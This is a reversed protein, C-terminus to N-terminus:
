STDCQHKGASVFDLIRASTLVKYTEFPKKVGHSATRFTWSKATQDAPHRCLEAGGPSLWFVSPANYCMKNRPFSVVWGPNAKNQPVYLRCLLDPNMCPTFTQILVPNLQAALGELDSHAATPTLWRGNLKLAAQDSPFHISIRKRRKGRKSLKAEYCM